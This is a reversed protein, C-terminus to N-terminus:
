KEQEVQKLLEGLESGERIMLDVKNELAAGLESVKSEAEEMYIPIKEIEELCQEYHKKDEKEKYYLLGDYLMYAYDVYRQYLFCDRRIAEKQYDMVKEYDKQHYALEAKVSYPLVCTDNQKIILNALSEQKALDTEKELIKLNAETYLPYWKAALDFNGYHCALLPVSFYFSIGTLLITPIIGVKWSIAHRQELWEGKWSAKTMIMCVIGFMISCIFNYEIFGHIVILVLIVKEELLGTKAMCTKVVSAVYCLAPIWGIDLITQLINHGIYEVTYRGTQVIGQMYSYGSYGLGFPHKVLLPLADQIYLLEGQVVENFLAEIMQDWLKYINWKTYIMWCLLAFVILFVFWLKRNQYKILIFMIVFLTFLFVSQSGTLFIGALLVAMMMFSEQTIKEKACVLVLCILLFMAFTHENQFGGHLHEDIYLKEYIQPVGYAIFGLICITFGVYPLYQFISKKVPFDTQQIIILFLFIWLFKFIGTLAMGADIAYIVSVSYALLFIGSLILGTNWELSITKKKLWIGIIGISLIASVIAGSYEEYMGCAFPLMIGLIVLFVNLINKKQGM